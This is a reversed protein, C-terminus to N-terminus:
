RQTKRKMYFHPCHKKVGKACNCNYCLAQYAKPFKNRILWVYFKYSDFSGRAKRHTAGDGKKHDITLFCFHKEGCCACKGGYGELVKRKAEKRCRRQLFLVRARNNKQWIRQWKRKRAVQAPNKAFKRLKILCPTCRHKTGEVKREKGRPCTTCLGAKRLARYQAVTLGV